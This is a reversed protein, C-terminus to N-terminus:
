HLLQSSHHSLMTSVIVCCVSVQLMIMVFSDSLRNNYILV